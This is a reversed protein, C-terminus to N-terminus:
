HNGHVPENDVFIETLIDGYLISIHKTMTLMSEPILNLRTECCKIEVKHYHNCM